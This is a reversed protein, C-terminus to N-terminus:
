IFVCAVVDGLSGMGSNGRDPNKIVKVGVIGFAVGFFIGVWRTEGNFIFVIGVVSDQFFHNVFACIGCNILWASIIGTALHHM